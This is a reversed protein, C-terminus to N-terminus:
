YIREENTGEDLRKLISTTMSGDNTTSMAILESSPFVIEREVDELILSQATLVTFFDCIIICQMNNLVTCEVYNIFGKISVHLVSCTHLNAHVRKLSPAHKCPLFM